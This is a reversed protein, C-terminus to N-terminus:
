RKDGIGFRGWQEQPYNSKIIRRYEFSRDKLVALAHNAKQLKEAVKERLKDVEQSMAITKDADDSLRKLSEETVGYNSVENLHKIMGIAVGKAKSANDEFTKSM